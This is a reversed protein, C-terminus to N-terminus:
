STSIIKLWHSVSIQPYKSQGCQCLTLEQVDLPFWSISNQIKPLIELPTRLVPSNREAELGQVAQVRVAIVNEVFPQKLKSLVALEVALFLQLHNPERGM